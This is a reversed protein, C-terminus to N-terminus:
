SEQTWVISRVGLWVYGDRPFLDKGRCIHGFGAAGFSASRQSLEPSNQPLWHACQYPLILSVTPEDMAIVFLVPVIRSSNRHASSSSSM